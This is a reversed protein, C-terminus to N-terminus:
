IVETLSNETLLISEDSPDGCQYCKDRLRIFLMAVGTFVVLILSFLAYFLIAIEIKIYGQPTEMLELFPYPYTVRYTFRIVLIFINYITQLAIPYLADRWLLKRQSQWVDILVLALILTHSIVWDVKTILDVNYQFVNSLLVWFMVCVNWCLIQSISFLIQITQSAIQYGYEEMAAVAFYCGTSFWTWNTLFYFQVM